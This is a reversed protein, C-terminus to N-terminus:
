KLDYWLPTRGIMRQSLIIIIADEDEAYFWFYDWLGLCFSGAKMPHEAPVLKQSRWNNSM